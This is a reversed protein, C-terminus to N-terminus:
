ENQGVDKTIDAYATKVGDRILFVNDNGGMQSIFREVIVDAYREDLEIMCCIRDTQECAILTSGSGGFPDLVVSNVMSSNIIPYAILQLPKMTPHVDNKKPRDYNWVTSQKRDSYWKHSGGPKWGYLVPEHQYHYDCKGMAFSNKVWLCTEHCFFGAETFATRFNVTEKDAHFVYICAGDAMAEYANKYFALLFKKFEAGAMNDNQIKGATGEYAVNYPPDTVVLNAQRGEMLVTYSEQKTSDGCLLRHRGLLWIDGQRSVPNEPPPIECDDEKVNENTINSMMEDLDQVTFGTLEFDIDGSAKIEALIDAALDKDLESLESLRNDAVLDAWEAAESEYDQYDVPAKETKMEVAAALRGHGKVIFGSRKSVTIPARWGQNRIIRALLKIQEKSHTNPNRPNGVLKTIDAIEDHACYVPIDGAMAKPFVKEM